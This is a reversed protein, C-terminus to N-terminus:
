MGVCEERNSMRGPRRLQGEPQVHVVEKCESCQTGLIDLVVEQEAARAWGGGVWM